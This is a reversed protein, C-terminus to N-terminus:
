SMGKRMSEIGVTRGGGFVSSKGGVCRMVSM